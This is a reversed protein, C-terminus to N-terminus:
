VNLHFVAYNITAVGPSANYALNFGGAAATISVIYASTTCAATQALVIDTALMNAVTVNVTTATGSMTTSSVIPALYDMVRDYDGGDKIKIRAM